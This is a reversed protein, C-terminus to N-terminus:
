FHLKLILMGKKSHPLLTELDNMLHRMRSTIGRSSLLLVKQKNRKRPVEESVVEDNGEEMDKLKRKGDTSAKLLSAM